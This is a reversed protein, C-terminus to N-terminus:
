LILFFVKGIFPYIFQILSIIFYGTRGFAKEVMGQFILVNAFRTSVMFVALRSNCFLRLLFIMPGFYKHFRLRIKMRQSKVLTNSFFIMQFYPIELAFKFFTQSWQTIHWVAQIQIQMVLLRPAVESLPKM